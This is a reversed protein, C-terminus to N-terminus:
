VAVALGRVAFDQWTGQSASLPVNGFRRVLASGGAFVVISLAIPIGTLTGTTLLAALSLGWVLLSVVISIVTNARQALFVYAILMMGAAVTGSFSTIAADSVFAPTHDLALLFYVPGSSIPLTAVLGGIVPGAKEAFSTSAVVVMAILVMKPILALTFPWAEALLHLM